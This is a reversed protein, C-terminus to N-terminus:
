AAEYELGTVDFNQVQRLLMGAICLGCACSVAHLLRSFPRPLSELSYRSALAGAQLCCIWSCDVSSRM